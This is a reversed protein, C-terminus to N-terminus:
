IHDSTDSGFHFHKELVLSAVFCFLKQYVLASKWNFSRRNSSFLAVFDIDAPVWIVDPQTPVFVMKWEGFPFM